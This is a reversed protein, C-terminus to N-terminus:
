PGGAGPDAIWLRGAAGELVLVRGGPLVALALPAPSAGLVLGAGAAALALGAPLDTPLRPPAVANGAGNLRWARPPWNAVVVLGGGGDPCWAALPGRYGPLRRELNWDQLVQGGRAVALVRGADPAALWIRGSGDAALESWPAEGAPLVAGALAEGRRGQRRLADGAAPLLLWDGGDAALALPWDAAPLDGGFPRRALSDGRTASAPIDGAAAGGGGDRGGARLSDAGLLEHLDGAEDLLLVRGGPGAALARATPVRWPGSPPPLPRVGREDLRYLAPPRPGAARDVAAAGSDAAAGDAAGLGPAALRTALVAALMWAFPSPILRRM